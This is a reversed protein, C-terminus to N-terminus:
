GVVVLTSREPDLLVRISSGPREELWEIAPVERTIGTEPEVIGVMDRDRYAILAKRAERVNGIVRWGEELMITIVAGTALDFLTVRRSDTERVESYRGGREIVDGKQYRPLRVAFTIRYLPVGDKEGVLKPHTRIRGGLKAVIRNAILRGLAHTGVVIDVGDHIEETRLIFALADGGERLAAEAEEAIRVSSHKEYATCKRGGARIQVVGEYYGGSMRSCRTCQESRWAIEVRGAAEVRKGHLLGEAQVTCVSRNSSTDTCEARIKREQVDARFEVAEELLLGSVRSREPPTAKWGTRDRIMGCIPCQTCQIRSPLIVWATGGTRCEM